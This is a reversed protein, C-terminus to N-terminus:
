SNLHTLTVQTADDLRKRADSDAQLDEKNMWQDVKEFLRVLWERRKLFLNTSSEILYFKFTQRWVKIYIYLIDHKVSM